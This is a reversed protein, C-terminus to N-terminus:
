AHPARHRGAGARPQQGRRPPLDLRAVPFTSEPVANDPESRSPPRREALGAAQGLRHRGVMAQAPRPGPRSSSSRPRGAPQRHRTVAPPTLRVQGGYLAALAPHQHADIFGPLVTAGAADWCQAGPGAAATVGGGRPGLALLRGERWAISEARTDAHDLTRVNAQLLVQARPALM